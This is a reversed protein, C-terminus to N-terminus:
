KRSGKKQKKKKPARGKVGGKKVTTKKGKGKGKPKDDEPFMTKQGDKKVVTRIEIEAPVAPEVVDRYVEVDIKKKCWPCKINQPRKAKTTDGM